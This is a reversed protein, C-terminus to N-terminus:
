KRKPAPSFSHSGPPLRLAPSIRGSTTVQNVSIANVKKLRTKNLLGTHSNVLWGKSYPFDDKKRLGLAFVTKFVNGEIVGEDAVADKKIAVVTGLPLTKDFAGAIGAQIVLAPRRLQLQKTLHFVTATLGVGTILVDIGKDPHYLKENNRYHDLFPAIELATAAVLLCNM